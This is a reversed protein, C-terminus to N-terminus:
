FWLEYHRPRVTGSYALEVPAPKIEPFETRLLSILREAEMHESKSGDASAYYRLEPQSPRTRTRTPPMVVVALESLTERLRSQVSAGDLSSPVQVYLRAPVTRLLATEVDVPPGADYASAIAVQSAQEEPTNAPAALAARVAQVFLEDSIPSNNLLAQAIASEQANASVLHSILSITASLRRTAEARGDAAIQELRAAEERREQYYCTGTGVVLTSLVWLMFASNLVSWVRRAGTKRKQKELDTRVEDRFIEEERVRVKEDDNLV